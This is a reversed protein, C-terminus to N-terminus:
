GILRRKLSHAALEMSGRWVCATLAKTWPNSIGNRRASQLIDVLYALQVANRARLRLIETLTPPRDFCLPASGVAMFNLKTRICKECRGCNKGSAQGEWCVRLNKAVDPTETLFKVRDTRTYRGGETVIEFDSGSLMPNTIPNSGWPLELHAYDEDAGFIGVCAISSYQHLCSALGAGFEAAWDRCVVQRWNTRVIALPIGLKELVSRADREAVTFADRADLPIDFGHVMVAALPKVTRRGCEGSLHRLLAFSSDVGGSYAFVGKRESQSSSIDAEHEATVAVTKYANPMWSLWVDQLEEINRLLSKSVTGRLHLSAGNRMAHFITAILASDLNIVPPPTLDGGFEYLIEKGAFRVIRSTGSAEEISVDWREM